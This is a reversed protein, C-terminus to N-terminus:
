HLRDEITWHGRLIDALEGPRTQTATLSTVAYVTETSWTKKGNKSNLPRRRRVIQIAQAAHPFGLGGAVEAIKMTRREVRGHGRERTDEAVPIERWPPGALQAHLAPSTANSTRRFTSECAVGEGAGFEALTAADADAAWEAIAVYSRAGALVACVALGLM